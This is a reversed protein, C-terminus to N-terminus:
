IDVMRCFLVELYYCVYVHSLFGRFYSVISFHLWDLLPAGRMCLVYVKHFEWQVPLTLDLFLIVVNVLGIASWMSSTALEEIMTDFFCVIIHLICREYCLFRWSSSLIGVFLSGVFWVMNKYWMLMHWVIYLLIEKLVGLSFPYWCRVM